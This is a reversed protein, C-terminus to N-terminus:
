AIREIQKKVKELEKQLRERKEYKETALTDQELDSKVLSYQKTLGELENRHEMMRAHIVALQDKNSKIVSESWRISNENAEKRDSDEKLYKELHNIQKEMQKLKDKLLMKLGGPM